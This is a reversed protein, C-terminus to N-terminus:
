WKPNHQVEGSLSIRRLTGQASLPCDVKCLSKDSKTFITLRKGRKFEIEITFFPQGKTFYEYVGYLEDNNLEDSGQATGENGAMMAIGSYECENTSKKNQTRVIFKIVRPTIYNVFVKQILTDDTFQYYDYLKLSDENKNRTKSLMIATDQKKSDLNEGNSSDLFNPNVMKKSQNSCCIILPIFIFLYFAFKYKM